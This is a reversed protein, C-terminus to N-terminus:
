KRRLKYKTAEWLAHILEDYGNTTYYCELPLEPDIEEPPLKIRTALFWHLEKEETFMTTITWLDDGLFGILHGITPLVKLDKFMLPHPSKFELNVSEMFREQEEESLENWVKKTIQQLM